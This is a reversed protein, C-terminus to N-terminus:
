PPWVMGRYTFTQNTRGYIVFRQVNTARTDLSGADLSNAYRNSLVVTTGALPQFQVSGYWVFQNSTYGVPTVTYQYDGGGSYAYFLQNTRPGYIDRYWLHAEFGADFGGGEDGWQMQSYYDLTYLSGDATITAVTYNTDWEGLGAPIGPVDQPDAPYKWTNTRSHDLVSTMVNSLTVTNTQQLGALWNTMQTFSPITNSDVGMSGSSTIVGGTLGYDAIITTVTGPNMEVKNSITVLSGNTRAGLISGTVAVSVGSTPSGGLGSLVNTSLESWNSLNLSAGQFNTIGLLARAKERNPARVVRYMLDTNDQAAAPWCWLLALVLAAAHFNTWRTVERAVFRMALSRPVWDPPIMWAPTRNFLNVGMVQATNALLESCFDRDNDQGQRKTVFRFVNKWDYKRGVRSLLYREGAAEQEETLAPTFEFVDVLTGPTHQDSLSDVVRVGSDWAEVVRGDRLVVAVHSYDSRTLWRILRSQFSTGQYCAVRM